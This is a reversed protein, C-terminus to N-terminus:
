LFYIKRPPLGPVSGQHCHDFLGIAEESSTVTPVSNETAVWIHITQTNCPRCQRMSYRQTGEPSGEPISSWSRIDVQEVM